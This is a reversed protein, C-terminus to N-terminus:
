GVGYWLLEFQGPYNEASVALNKALAGEHPLICHDKQSAPSVWVVNLQKCFCQRLSSATYHMLTCLLCILGNNKEIKATLSM